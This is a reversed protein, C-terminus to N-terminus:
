RLYFTVSESSSTFTKVPYTTLSQSKNSTKSTNNNSYTGLIQIGTSTWHQILLNPSLLQLSLLALLLLADIHIGKSTQRIGKWVSATAPVTSLVSHPTHFNMWLAALLLHPPRSIATSKIQFGPPRLTRFGGINPKTRSSQRTTGTSTPPESVPMPQPTSLLSKLRPKRAEWFFTNCKKKMKALDAPLFPLTLTRFFYLAHSLLFMRALAIRGVWSAKIFSM